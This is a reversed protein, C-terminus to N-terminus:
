QLFTGIVVIPCAHKNGDLRYRKTGYPQINRLFKDRGFVMELTERYVHTKTTKVFLM